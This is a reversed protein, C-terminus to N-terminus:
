DCGCEVGKEAFAKASIACLIVAKSQFKIGEDNMSSIKLENDCM